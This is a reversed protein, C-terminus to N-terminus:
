ADRFLGLLRISATSGSFRIPYERAHCSPLARSRARPPFSPRHIAVICALSGAHCSAAHQQGQSNRRPGDSKVHRTRMRIPITVRHPSKPRFIRTKSGSRRSRRPRALAAVLGSSLLHQQRQHDSHTGSRAKARRRAGTGRTHMHGNAGKTSSSAAQHM